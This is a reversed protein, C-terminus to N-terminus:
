CCLCPSCRSALGFRSRLYECGSPDTRRGLSFTAQLRVVAESNWCRDSTMPSVTGEEVNSTIAYFRFSLSCLVVLILEGHIKPLQEDLSNNLTCVIFISLRIRCYFYTDYMIESCRIGGM